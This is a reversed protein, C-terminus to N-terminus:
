LNGIALWMGRAMRREIPKPPAKPKKPINLKPIIQKPPEHLRLKLFKERLEADKAEDVVFSTKVDSGEPLPNDNLQIVPVKPTPAESQLPLERAAM